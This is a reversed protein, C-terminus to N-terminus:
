AAFKYDEDDRVIFLRYVTEDIVLTSTTALQEGSSVRDIFRRSKNGEKGKNGLAHIFVNADIFM